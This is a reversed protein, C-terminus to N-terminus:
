AGGGQWRMIGEPAWGTGVLRDYVSASRAPTARAPRPPRRQRDRVPQAPVEGLGAVVEGTGEGGPGALSEGMRVLARAVESRGRKLVFPQGRDSAGLVTGEDAPIVYSVPHDLGRSIQELKISRQPDYRNVVLRVKESPYGLKGLLVDLVRGARYLVPVEATAVLMVVQASDLAALTAERFTSQTDVVLYDCLRRLRSIVQTVYPRGAERRAEGDVEAALHPEPPAALLGPLGATGPTLVKLIMDDTLEGERRCLDIISTRPEVGMLPGAVGFELDLDMLVAKRGRLALWSALNVALTTKGVGAPGFFVVSLAGSAPHPTPPLDGTGDVAARIAALLEDAGFPKVLYDRVGARMARRFEEAGSEVSVVIVSTPFHGRVAEAVQAGDLSPLRMDVVMVDPRLAIAMAVAKTGDEAEGVVEVDGSGGLMARLTSRWAASDEAILVRIRDEEM